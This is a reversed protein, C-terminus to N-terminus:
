STAQQAEEFMALAEPDMKEKMEKIFRQAEEPSKFRNLQDPDDLNMYEQFKEFDILTDTIRNDIDTLSHSDESIKKENNKGIPTRNETSKESDQNVIIEQRNHSINLFYLGTITIVVISLLGLVLKRRM